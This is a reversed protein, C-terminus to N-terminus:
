AAVLERRVALITLLQLVCAGLAAFDEGASGLEGLVLPGVRGLAGELAWLAVLGVLGLCLQAVVAAGVRALLREDASLAALGEHLGYAQPNVHSLVASLAGEGAGVAGLAVRSEGLQLHMQAGVRPLLGVETRLAALTKGVGGHIPLVPAVVLSVPRVGAVLTALGVCFQLVKFVM